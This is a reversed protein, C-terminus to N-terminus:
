PHAAALAQWALSAVAEDLARTVRAVVDPWDGRTAQRILRMSPYWPSAHPALGYRWDCSFPLMTLVPKGLAGALHAVATDCTVVLDLNAIIAATDDFDAIERDLDVFNAPLERGALEDCGAGKQLSYFRAGRVSLLGRVAEFGPSRERSNRLAVNGDVDDSSVRVSPSFKKIAVSFAAAALRQWVRTM